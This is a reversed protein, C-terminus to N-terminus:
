QAPTDQDFLPLQGPRRPPDPRPLAEPCGMWVRNYGGHRSARTACQMGTPRILGRQSAARFLAPITNVSHPPEVDAPLMRRVGEATFPRGSRALDVIIRALVDKASRHPATGAALVEAVGRDRRARGERTTM